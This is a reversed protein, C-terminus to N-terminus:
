QQILNANWYQLDSLWKQYKANNEALYSRAKDSQQIINDDVCMAHYIVDHYASPFAPSDSSSLATPYAKYDFEYTWVGTPQLAFYLRGNVIDVYCVGDQNRYQRRDSWSVVNYPSFTVGGDKSVYVVPREAEYSSDTHNANQLVYSFDSPLTVYPLTTSLTGTAAKKLFEWPRDNCIQMYIKDFLDSEEQSSLDTTDDMFLEFRTIIQTKTM